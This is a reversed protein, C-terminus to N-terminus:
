QRGSVAFDWTPVDYTESRAVETGPMTENTTVHEELTWQQQQGSYGNGVPPGQESMLPAREAAYPDEVPPAFSVSPQRSLAPNATTQTQAFMAENKEKKQKGGRPCFKFCGDGSEWMKWYGISFVFVTFVGTLIAALITFAFDGASSDVPSPEYPNVGGNPVGALFSSASENSTTVGIPSMSQMAIRQDNGPGYYSYGDTGIGDFPTTSSMNLWASAGSPTATIMALGTPQWPYVIYSTPPKNQRSELSHEEEPQPDLYITDIIEHDIVMHEWLGSPNQIKRLQKETRKRLKKRRKAVPKDSFVMKSERIVSPLGTAAYIVSGTGADIGALFGSSIGQQQVLPDTGAKADILTGLVLFMSLQRSYEVTYHFWQVGTAVLVPESALVGDPDVLRAYLDRSPYRQWIVLWKNANGRGAAVLPWSDYTETSDPSIPIPGGSLAGDSSVLQALIREGVVGGLGTGDDKVATRGTGYVILFNDGLAAVHGSHGDPIDTKNWAKVVPPPGTANKGSLNALAQLDWVGFSQSTVLTAPDQFEWGDTRAGEEATVLLRGKSSVAASSPTKATGGTTLQVTQLRLNLGPDAFFAYIQHAWLRTQNAINQNFVVFYRSSADDYVADVGRGYKHLLIAATANYNTM